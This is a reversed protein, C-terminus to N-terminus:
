SELKERLIKKVKKINVRGKTEKMAQGILFQFANEKGSKFDSVAEENKELIEEIINNIKEQSDIKSLGKKEIISSPSKGTKFMEKLVKKAIKSSIKKKQILLIFDTFDEPSFLIKDQSSQKILGQLDTTIYNSTLKISEKLEKKSIKNKLISMVKGFFNGMERNRVFFKVDQKKLNYVKKLKERKEGPLESIEEKIKKIEEESFVLPPLDPEPLYRYDHAEEKHRQSITIEKDANWGRTEQVIEKGERLRNAQRKVEYKIAKQVSKFSNLNKVEVRNNSLNIKDKKSLSINVEVRMQGKEMDAHSIDLHRLILQLEKAFAVAEKASRIDPETVLEMLPVGARNFDVLSYNGDTHILKGADEELHIRRINIKKNEIELYGKKCLPMEYQSIQYGKPLDPYFYNKRDFKSIKNIKCNLALGIKIVKEVAKQNIVPLTGPHGLCVPCINTNPKAKFKNPCSCFMKSSTKLESHIELGIVPQFDKESM